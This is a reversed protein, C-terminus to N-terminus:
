AFPVREGDPVDLVVVRRVLSQDRQANLTTGTVNM